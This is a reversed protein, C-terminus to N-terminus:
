VTFVGIITPKKISVEEAKANEWVSVHIEAMYTKDNREVPIQVNEHSNPIEFYTEEFSVETEGSEIANKVMSLADEANTAMVLVMDDDSSVIKFLKLGSM